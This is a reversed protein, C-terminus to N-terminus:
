HQGHMCIMGPYVAASPPQPGTVCEIVGMDEEDYEDLVTVETCPVGPHM